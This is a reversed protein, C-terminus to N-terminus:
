PKLITCRNHNFEFSLYEYPGICPLLTLNLCSERNSFTSWNLAYNEFFGSSKILFKAVRVFDRFLFKKDDSNGFPLTPSDAALYGNGV